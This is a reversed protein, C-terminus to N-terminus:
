FVLMEEPIQIEGSILRPLLEERLLVIEQNSKRFSQASDLLREALVGFVGLLNPSPVVIETNRADEQSIFPQASGRKPWFEIDKTAFYIYAISQPFESNEILRITNKICSWKGSTYWTAGCGAGIASLVIGTQEYDFKNLLGDPGKASFALHGRPVYSSKTTKTDGWSLDCIKGLREISWGEPILGFESPKMSDPFLAATAVNLGVPEKGAMKEKVPDFDIFWSRFTSQAINELTAAMATNLEVKRDLMAIFTNIRNQEDLSPVPILQEYIVDYPLRQVTTGTDGYAARRRNLPVRLFNFLFEPILDGSTAIAKAVDLSYVLETKGGLDEPVKLPSALLGEQQETMALLVDGPEAIHENRYDGDYPKESGRKYGGGAIFADITLLGVDAEDVLNLGKYGLGKQLEFHKGISETRFTM